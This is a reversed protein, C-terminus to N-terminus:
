PPQAVADLTPEELRHPRRMQDGAVADRIEEVEEVADQLREAPAAARRRGSLPLM